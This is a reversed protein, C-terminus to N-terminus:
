SLPGNVGHRSVTQGFLFDALTDQHKPTGRGTEGGGVESGRRPLPGGAVQAAGAEEGGGAGQFRGWGLAGGERTKPGLRSFHDTM